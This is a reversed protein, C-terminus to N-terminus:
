PHGPCYCVTGVPYIIPYNPFSMLIIGIVQAHLMIGNDLQVNAMTPFFM